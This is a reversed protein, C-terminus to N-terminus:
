RDAQTHTDTQRDTQRDTEAWAMGGQGVPVHPRVGAGVLVVGLAVDDLSHVWVCEVVATWVQGIHNVGVVLVTPVTTPVYSM